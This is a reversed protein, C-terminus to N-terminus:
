QYEASTPEETHEVAYQIMVYAWLFTTQETRLCNRFVVFCPPDVHNGHALYPSGVM